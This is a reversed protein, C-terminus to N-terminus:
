ENAADDTPAPAPSAMTIRSPRYETIAGAVYQEASVGLVEARKQIVHAALVRDELLTHSVIWNCLFLSLQRPRVVQMDQYKILESLLKGHEDVHKSIKGYGYASMLREECAFHCMAFSAVEEILPRAHPLLIDDQLEHVRKILSFLYRHQVDIDALGSEFSENWEM